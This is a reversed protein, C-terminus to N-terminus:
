GHKEERAAHAASNQAGRERPTDTGTWGEPAGLVRAVEDARYYRGRAYGKMTVPSLVCCERLRRLMWPSVGLREVIERRTVFLKAM